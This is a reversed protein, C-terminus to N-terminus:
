IPRYQWWRNPDWPDTLYLFGHDFDYFYEAPEAGFAYDWDIVISRRDTTWWRYPFTSWVGFEDCAEMYGTRDAYNVYIHEDAKPIPYGQFSICEWAGVLQNDYFYEDCSQLSMVAVLATALYFFKLHKM